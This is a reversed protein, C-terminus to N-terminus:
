LWREPSQGRDGTNVERELCVGGAAWLTHRIRLVPGVNM